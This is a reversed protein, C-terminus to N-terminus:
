DHAGIRKLHERIERNFRMQAFRYVTDHTAQPVVEIYGPGGPFERGAKAESRAHADIMARLKLASRDFYFSDREGVLVRIRSAFLQGWTDSGRAWQMRIRRAIDRQAWAEVTVPDIVGTLPDCLRRPANTSPDIVGLAAAWADWQEASTGAPSIAHEFGVEDRVLMPVLEHMPGLVSRYAPREVGDSDVFLNEDRYIDSLQFASFDLSEPASVFASAFTEPHNLALWTAAWGGSSHGTLVRARADPILRYREELWPILESVLADGRPGNAPSDIFGHNGYPGQPDLIVHVAEPCLVSLREDALQTALEAASSWKAGFGPVVYVTPWIRRRARLNDYDRPFVVAAHHMVRRGAAASLKPSELEVWAINKAQPLSAPAIRESLELDVRDEAERHFEVEVPASVLNGPALHSHDIPNASFVVQVEYSGDLTQPAGAPWWIAREDFKIVAGPLLSEVQVSGVPQPDDFFPGDIPAGQAVSDLAKLFVIATGSRAKPDLLGAHAEPLRMTISDIPKSEGAMLPRVKRGKDIRKYQTPMADADGAGSRDSPSDTTPQPLPAIRPVSQLGICLAGIFAVTVM